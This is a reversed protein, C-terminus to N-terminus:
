TQDTWIFVTVSVLLGLILAITTEHGLKFHHHEMFSGGVIYIVLLLFIIIVGLAEANLGHSASM